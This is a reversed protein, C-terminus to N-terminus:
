KIELFFSQLCNNGYDTMDVSIYELTDLVNYAKHKLYAYPNGSKETIESMTVTSSRTTVVANAIYGAVCVNTPDNNGSVNMIQAAPDGTTAENGATAALTVTSITKSPRYYITTSGHGAGGAPLGTITSGIDGSVLVKYSLVGWVAGTGTTTRAYAVESWGSPGAGSYGGSGQAYCHMIALDGAQASASITHSSTTSSTSFLYSVTLAGGGGGAGNRMMLTQLCGAM